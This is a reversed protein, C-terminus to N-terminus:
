DAHRFLMEKAALVAGGIILLCGATVAGTAEGKGFVILLFTSILPAAYAFAGLVRIDGHKTGHDWAFFALGVPLLGLGVIALWEGTDAPWVTAEFAIHAVAALVATAACFGGVADTPVTGFRRNIVSYGSWTLACCVAMIYGLTDADRFGHLGRGGTVLIAAGALGALAGALHFWRLREGPLSASFLVILLPWMYAILGAEVPPANRLAMFYFFHYGFLGGVSVIWAGAPQRLHGAVDDGRILWKAVIMLTAIGFALAALLFPPVGGTLTTFLALLGWMVVAAGGILTARRTATENV